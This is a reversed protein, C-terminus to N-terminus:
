KNGVGLHLLSYLHPRGNPPLQPLVTISGQALIGHGPWPQRRNRRTVGPNPNPNPKHCLFSDIGCKVMHGVAHWNSKSPVDVGITLGHTGHHLCRLKQLQQHAIISIPQLSGVPHTHPVAVTVAATHLVAPSLLIIREKKNNLYHLSSLVIAHKHPPNHRIHRTSGDTNRTQEGGYGDM